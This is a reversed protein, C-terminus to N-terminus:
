DLDDDENDDDLELSDERVCQQKQLQQQVPAAKTQPIPLVTRRTRREPPANADLAMLDSQRQRVAGVPPATLYDALCALERPLQSKRRKPPQQQKMDALPPPPPSGPQESAVDAAVAVVAPEPISPPLPQAVDGAENLDPAVKDVTQANDDLIAFTVATPDPSPSPLTRWAATPGDGVPAAVASVSPVTNRKAAITSTRRPRKPVTKAPPPPSHLMKMVPPPPPPLPTDLDIEDELPSLEDDDDDEDVIFPHHHRARSTGPTSASLTPSLSLAPSPLCTFTATAVASAAITTRAAVAAARGRRVPRRVPLLLLKGADDDDGDKQITCACFRSTPSDADPPQQEHQQMEMLAIAATLVDPAHGILAKQQQRRTAASAVPSSWPLSPARLGAAALLAAAADTRPRKRAPLREKGALFLHDSHDDSPPLPGLDLGSDTSSVSSASRSRKQRQQQQQRRYHGRHRSSPEVVPLQPTAGLPRRRKQRVRAYHDLMGLPPPAPIMPEHQTYALHLDGLPAAHQVLPDRAMSTAAPALTTPYVIRSSALHLSTRLRSVLAQPDLGSPAIAAM